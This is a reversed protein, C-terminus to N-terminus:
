KKLQVRIAVVGYRDEDAETYFKRYVSIGETVSLINPLVNGVGEILLMDFFRGYHVVELIEVEIVENNQPERHVAITDGAKMASFNGKDLRGGVTKRGIKLQTFYPEQINTQWHAM